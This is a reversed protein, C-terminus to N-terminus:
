KRKRQRKIGRQRKRYKEVGIRRDSLVEKGRWWVASLAHMSGLYQLLRVGESLSHGQCKCIWSECRKRTLKKNSVM